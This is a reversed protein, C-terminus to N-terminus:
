ESPAFSWIEKGTLDVAILLKEKIAPALIIKEGVYVPTSFIPTGITTVPKPEKERDILFVKGEETVFLIGETTERGGAIIAAGTSFPVIWVPSGDMLSVAYVNGAEDGFFVTDEIVVPSGWISKISGGNDSSWITKGTDADVSYLVGRITTVFLRNDKIVPDAAIASSLDLKWEPKSVLTRSGDEDMILEDNRYDLKFAYLFHDLSALFVYKGNSVPKTWNPGLTKYRWVLDGNLNLAYLYKDSNPAFIRDGVILSSGIYRDKASSFEWKTFGSERDLAFLTNTYNGVVLLNNAIEPPAYFQSKPDSKQPYQWLLSGNKTDIAIVQTGYSFYGVNDAASGGPWSSVTTAGTCGSLAILVLIGIWLYFYRNSKNM